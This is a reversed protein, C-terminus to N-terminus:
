RDKDRWANIARKQATPRARIIKPADPVGTGLMRLLERRERAAFWLVAAVSLFALGSSVVCYGCVM